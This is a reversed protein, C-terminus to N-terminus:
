QDEHLFQSEINFLTSLRLPLEPIIGITKDKFYESSFDPLYFAVLSDIRPEARYAPLKKWDRKMLFYGNWDM